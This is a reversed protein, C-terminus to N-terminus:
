GRDSIPLLSIEQPYPRGTGLTSLRVVEHTSQRSIRSAEFMQLRFPM